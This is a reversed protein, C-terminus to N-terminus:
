KTVPTTLARVAGWGYKKYRRHATRKDIGYITAWEAFCRTVGDIKVFVTTRRNIAQAKRTAWECNNPSYGASNDRRELTLGVPREGMDALFNEFSRWRPCLSIGRGGYNKFAPAKPNTCRNLLGHWIMYTPSHRMGHTTNLSVVQAAAVEKLLCGCSKTTGARVSSGRAIIETGCTCRLQWMADGRNNAGAYRLARLRNFQQGTIDKYKM